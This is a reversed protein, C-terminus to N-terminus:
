RPADPPPATWTMPQYRLGTSESVAGALVFGHRLYTPVSTLSASVTM